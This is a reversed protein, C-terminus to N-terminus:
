LSFGTKILFTRMESASAMRRGPPTPFLKLTSGDKLRRHLAYRDFLPTRDLVLRTGRRRNIDAVMRALEQQRMMSGWLGRARRLSCLIKHLTTYGYAVDQPVDLYGGRHLLPRRSGLPGAVGLDPWQSDAGRLAGSGRPRFARGARQTDTMSGPRRDYM